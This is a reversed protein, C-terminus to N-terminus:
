LGSISDWGSLVEGDRSTGVRGGYLRWANRQSNRHSRPFLYTVLTKPITEFATVPSFSSPLLCYCSNSLFWISLSPPIVSYQRSSIVNRFGLDIVNIKYKIFVLPITTFVSFRLPHVITFQSLSLSRNGTTGSQTSTDPAIFGIM